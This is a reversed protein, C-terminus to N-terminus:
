TSSRIAQSRPIYQFVSNQSFPHFKTQSRSQLWSRRESGVLRQAPVESCRHGRWGERTVLNTPRMMEAELCGGQWNGISGEHNLNECSISCSRESICTGDSIRQESHKLPKEAGRLCLRFGRISSLLRKALERERCRHGKQAAEQVDVHWGKWHAPQDRICKAGRVKLVKSTPAEPGARFERCLDVWKRRVVM